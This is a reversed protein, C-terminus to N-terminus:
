AWAMRRSGWFLPDEEWVIFQNQGVRFFQGTGDLEATFAVADNYDGGVQIGSIIFHGILVFDPYIEIEFERLLADGSVASDIIDPDKTLGEITAGISRHAQTVRGTSTNALYEQFGQSDDTTVDILSNDVQFNRTRVGAIVSGNLLIRLQRGKRIAM